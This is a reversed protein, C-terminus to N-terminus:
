PSAHSERQLYGFAGAGAAPLARDERHAGDGAGGHFEFATSQAGDIAVAEAGARDRPHEDGQRAVGSDRDEGSPEVRESGREKGLTKEMQRLRRRLTEIQQQLAQRDDAEIVEAATRLRRQARDLISAAMELDRRVGNAETAMAGGIRQTKLFLAPAALIRERMTHTGARWAAYLQGALRSDCRCEVFAAALRECDPLNVRATPVLYRMAVQATIRGDRVQRQITAPLLEVLALRRSVWSVSRDFRRALQELSYGFRQELEALLWGQELATEQRSARLSRELLLADAESLTWVIADVTDKGLQQLAAIRQFGDIVIYSAPSTEASVVIIPAQQGHEALSALLHRQQQPHRVRLHEWRRDLQHFEVQM